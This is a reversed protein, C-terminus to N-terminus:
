SLIKEFVLDLLNSHAYLLKSTISDKFIYDLVAMSKKRPTAPSAKAWERSYRKLLRMYEQLLSAAFRTLGWGAFKKIAEDVLFEESGSPMQLAKRYRPTNGSEILIKLMTSIADVSSKGMRPWGSKQEFLLYILYPLYESPLGAKNASEILANTIPKAQALIFDEFDKGLAALVKEEELRM